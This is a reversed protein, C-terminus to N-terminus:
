TLFLVNEGHLVNVEEGPASSMVLGKCRSVPLSVVLQDECLGESLVERSARMVVM